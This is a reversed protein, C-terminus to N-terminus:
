GSTPAEGTRLYREYWQATRIVQSADEQLTSAMSVKSFREAAALLAVERAREVGDLGEVTITGLAQARSKAELRKARTADDAKEYMADLADNADDFTSM